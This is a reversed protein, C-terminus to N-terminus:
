VYVIMHHMSGDGNQFYAIRLMSLIKPSNPLQVKDTIQISSNGDIFAQASSLVENGQISVIKKVSYEIRAKITYPADITVMSPTIFTPTDTLTGPEGYENLHILPIVTLDQTLFKRLNARM